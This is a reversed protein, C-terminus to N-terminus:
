KSAYLNKREKDTLKAKVVSGDDKQIMKYSSDKFFFYVYVNGLATFGMYFIFMGIVSVEEVLIPTIISATVAFLFLSQQGIGAGKDCSTEIIHIFKIPGITAQFIILFVALMAIIGVNIKYAVFIINLIQTLLMIVLGSQLIQKHSLYKGPLNVFFCGFWNSINILQTTLVISLSYQGTDKMEQFIATSYM